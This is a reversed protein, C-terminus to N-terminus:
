RLTVGARSNLYAIVRLAAGEGQDEIRKMAEVCIAIVQMEEDQQAPARVVIYTPPAGCAANHEAVIAAAIEPTEASAVVKNAFDDGELIECRDGISLDSQFWRAM